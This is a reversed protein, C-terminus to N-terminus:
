SLAGTIADMADKEGDGGDGDGGSPAQTSYGSQKGIADIAEANEKSREAVSEVDERLDKIESLIEESADKDADADGDDNKDTDDDAGETSESKMEDIDERLSKLEALVEDDTDDNSMTSTDADAHKDDDEDEPWARETHESLTFATDERDTFRTMGHDVGADELVDLSADITAFLSDRNQASLTRGEKSSSDTRTQTEAVSADDPIEVGPLASAAAKGIREFFSTKGPSAADEAEMARTLVQWLREADPESHGRQQAESIFAERNGLYDGLNKEGDKALIQADPVAPIDVVSVERIVGDTIQYVGREDADWEEPIGVGEPLDAPDMPEWTVDRAGISFGSIVDDAILQYLEDDNVRWTQIWDGAELEEEPIHYFGCFADPDDIDDQGEAWDTCEGFTGIDDPIPADEPFVKGYIGNSVLDMWESPWAAHMIGGDASEEALLAEFGDAFQEIQEPTAWDGQLDVEEPRMVVGTVLQEDDAKAVIDVEKTFTDGKSPPM